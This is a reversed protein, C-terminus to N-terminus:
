CTEGRKTLWCNYTAGGWRAGFTTTKVDANTVTYIFGSTTASGEARITYVGPDLTPCTVTFQGSATPAACPSVAAATSRYTRNDQYHQELRNQMASLATTADVLRGRLVYDAYSPYALGALIAVVAVAVMLEILTFGRAKFGNGHSRM